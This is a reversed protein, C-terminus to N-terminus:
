QQAGARERHETEGDEVVGGHHHAEHRDGADRQGEEGVATREGHDVEDAGAGHQADVQAPVYVALASRGGKGAMVWFISISLSGCWVRMATSSSSRRVSIKTSRRRCRPM